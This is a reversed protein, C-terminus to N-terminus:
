CEIKEKVEWFAPLVDASPSNTSNTSSSSYSSSNELLQKRQYQDYHNMVMRHSRAVSEVKSFQKDKIRAAELSVDHDTIEDVIIQMIEPDPVFGLVDYFVKGRTKTNLLDRSTRFKQAVYLPPLPKRDKQPISNSEEKIFVECDDTLRYFGLSFSPLLIQGDKLFYKVRPCRDINRGESPFLSSISDLNDADIDFIEDHYHVHIRVM